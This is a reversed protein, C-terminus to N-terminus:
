RTQSMKEAFKETTGLKLTIKMKKKISQKYSSQMYLLYICKNAKRMMITVVKTIIGTM